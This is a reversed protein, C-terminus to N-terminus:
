DLDRGRGGGRVHRCNHVKGECVAQVIRPDNDDSAEHPKPLREVGDCTCVTDPETSPLRPEWRSPQAGGCAAVVVLLPALALVFRM